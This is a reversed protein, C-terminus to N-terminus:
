IEEDILTVHRFYRNPEFSAGLAAIFMSLAAIFAAMMAYHQRTVDSSDAGVWGAVLAPPFLGGGIVLATVVTCAYTTLMGFSLILVASTNSVVIRETLPRRERGLWLRQRRVVYATTLVLALVTLVALSPASQRQAVEWVEATMILIFVASLAAGTLRSFRFPFQWPRAEHVARAIAQRNLWMGQLHFRLAGPRRETPQEELRQDAVARLHGGMEDLQDASFREAQDLGEPSAVPFLFNREDERHSLGALDGIAHLALAELRRAIVSQRDAEPAVARLRQPDLRLTSLVASELSRSVVAMAEAEYHTMLDAATVALTFDWGAIEREAVGHDLLQVPEVRMEGGLERHRVPHIRWTFEPLADQLRARVRERAEAVADETCSDMPGAVIWGIDIFHAGSTESRPESQDLTMCHWGSGRGRAISDVRSDGKM